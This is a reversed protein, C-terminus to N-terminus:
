LAQGVWREGVTSGSATWDSDRGEVIIMALLAVALLYFYRPGALFVLVPLVLLATAAAMKWKECWTLGEGLLIGAPLITLTLDHMTAHYSALIAVSVALPLSVRKTFGTYFILLTSALATAITAVLPRSHFLVYFLGRLNPMSGPYEGLRYQQAEPLRATSSLLHIFGSLGATGVLWFSLIALAAGTITFGAVFKWRRWIVFLLLIPIAYQFKFLSLSVLAGASAEQGRDLLVFAASILTFLLISDQSQFLAITVPISCAFVAEPLWSWVQRLPQLYGRLLYFALGLLCLNGILVAVYASRYSLLSLPAFLLAEYPAHNFPLAVDEVSVHANEVSRQTDYDFLHTANGTRVLYGAAYLCRFDARGSIGIRIGIYLSTLVILLCLAASAAVFPYITKRM